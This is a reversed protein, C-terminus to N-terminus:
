KAVLKYKRVKRGAKNKADLKEVAHGRSAADKLLNLHPGGFTNRIEETTAGGKRGYM